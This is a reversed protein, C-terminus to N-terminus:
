SEVKVLVADSNDVNSAVIYYRRASTLNEFAKSPNMADLTFTLIYDSDNAADYLYFTGKGFAPTGDSYYDVFSVVIQTSNTYLRFNHLQELSTTLFPMKSLDIIHVGKQESEMVAQASGSEPTAYSEDPPRQPYVIEAGGNSEDVRGNDSGGFGDVLSQWKGIDINAANWGSSYNIHDVGIINQLDTVTQERLNTDKINVLYRNRFWSADVDKFREVDDESVRKFMDDYAQESSIFVMSEINPISMIRSGLARSEDESFIENIYVLLVNDADTKNATTNGLLLVSATIVIAVAVVSILLAPKKYKLVNKIRMSVGTEGFALPNLLGSKKASLYLLSNSYVSRIDTDSQKMVYDDASLEMDRTMLAYAVWALPNFWHITAVLFAFPKVLYDLRKIHTQEHLKIYQLEQDYLGVPVYIKPHIFGLVFPTKIQDTEYVNDKTRIATRVKKYLRLYKIIGYSVLSLIGAFWIAMGVRLTMKATNKNNNFVNDVIPLGSQIIQNESYVINTPITQPQIPVASVPMEITFPCILRFFVVAWLMYAYKKPAKKLLLRILLVALAVFSASISMNLIQIFLGSM